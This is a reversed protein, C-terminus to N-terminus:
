LLIEILVRQFFKKAPRPLSTVISEILSELTDNIDDNPGQQPRRRRHVKQDAHQLAKSCRLNSPKSSM